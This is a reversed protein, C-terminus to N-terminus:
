DHWDHRCIQTNEGFSAVAAAHEGGIPLTRVTMGLAQVPARHALAAVSFEAPAIAFGTGLAKLVAERATWFTYFLARCRASSADQLCAIEEPAFVGRAVAVFDFGTRICEVDVGVEDGETLALLAMDDAHSWNVHLPAARFGPALVPKGHPGYTLPVESPPCQLHRGLLMRVISRTRVWRTRDRAFRFRAARVHEEPTLAEEWREPPLHSVALSIRWLHIPSPVDREGQARKNADRACATM